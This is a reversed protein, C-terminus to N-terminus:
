APGSQDRHWQARRAADTVAGPTVTVGVRPAGLRARARRPWSNSNPCTEVQRASAVQGSPIRIGVECCVRALRPGVGKYLALVGENKILQSLCDLSSKYKHADLGQMRSKIVDIGQFLLVSVGGAFAGAAATRLAGKRYEAPIYMFVGFRTAQATAVKFITAGLGLYCAAIGDEKVITAVGHFFGNFRPTASKFMDDILKIKITEQPTTVFIAECTGAGLGALFGKAKGLEKPLMNSFAEKSSFRIAAKPTAFYVMSELGRYMGFPGSKKLTDKVVDMAGMKTTALQQMTKTYEIPYTCCIEVM